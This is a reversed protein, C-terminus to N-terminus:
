PIWVYRYSSSFVRGSIKERAWVVLSHWGPRVDVPVDFNFIYPQIDGDDVEVAKSRLIVMRRGTQINDLVLDVFVDVDRYPHKNIVTAMVSTRCGGLIKNGNVPTNISITITNNDVPIPIPQPRRPRHVPPPRRTSQVPEPRCIVPPKKMIPAPKPKPAAVQQVNRQVIKPMNITIPAPRLEPHSHARIKKDRCGALLCALAVTAFIPLIITHKKM